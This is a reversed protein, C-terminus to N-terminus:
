GNIEEEKKWQGDLFVKLEGQAQTLKESCIGAMQLGEKYLTIADDLRIEDTDLQQLIEELRKMAEEFDLKRKAM